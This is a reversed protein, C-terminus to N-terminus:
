RIDMDNLDQVIINAISALARYQEVRTEKSVKELFRPIWSIVHDEGFKQIKSRWLLSQEKDGAQLGIALQTCLFVMFEFENFISDVPETRADRPIVGADRMQQEVDLAIATFFLSPM